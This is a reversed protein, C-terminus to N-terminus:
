AAYREGRGQLLHFLRQELAASPVAFVPPSPQTASLGVQTDGVLFTSYWTNSSFQTAALGVETAGVLFGYQDSVLDETVTLGSAAKTSVVMRVWYGFSYSPLWAPALLGLKFGSVAAGKPLETKFEPIFLHQLCPLLRKSKMAALVQLADGRDRIVTVDSGAETGDQDFYPSHLDAVDIKAPDRVGACLGLVSDDSSTYVYPSQAWGPLDSSVLNIKAAEARAAAVTPDSPSAAIAPESVTLTGALALASAAIGLLSTARM